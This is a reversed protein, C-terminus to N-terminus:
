RATELYAEMVRNGAKRSRWAAMYIDAQKEAFALRKELDEVALLRRRLDNVEDVLVMDMEYGMEMDLLINETAVQQYHAVMALSAFAVFLLGILVKQM